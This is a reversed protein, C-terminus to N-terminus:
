AAAGKSRSCAELLADAMQDLPVQQQAAGMEWAARPMGYVVSSAEDQGFTRAGVDRLAKLGAAGDRGMGTLLAAVVNRAHPLASRFMWDISPRHGSYLDGDQLRTQPPSDETLSLHKSVGAGICVMGPEITLGPRAFVVRAATQRDLLRALSEGFGIGTHQVIVTPPCDATFRSLIRSLADVGGTSAGILLLASSRGAGATRLGSKAPSNQPAKRLHLLAQLQRMLAEPGASLTVPFLDSGASLSAGGYRPASDSEVVIWRVDLAQFLGRMVEFESCRTMEASIVVASPNTEEVANFAEMLNHTVALLRFDGTRELMRRLDRATATQPWCLILSPTM